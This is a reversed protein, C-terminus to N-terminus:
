LSLVVEGMYTQPPSATVEPMNEALWGAAAANSAETGAADDAVTVSVTGGEVRVLYYARVGPVAGIVASVEDARDALRDALAENGEYWRFTAHM